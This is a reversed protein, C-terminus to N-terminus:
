FGFSCRTWPPHCCEQNEETAHQSHTQLAAWNGEARQRVGLSDMVVVATMATDCLCMMQHNNKQNKNHMKEHSKRTSIKEAREGIGDRRMLSCASHCIIHSSKESHSSTLKTPSHCCTACQGVNQKSRSSVAICCPTM